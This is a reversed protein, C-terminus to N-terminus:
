VFLPDLAVIYTAYAAVSLGLEHLGQALEPGFHGDLCADGACLAQRAAFQVPVSAAFIGLSILTVAVWAARALLLGYGRLRPLAGSAVDTGAAYTAPSYM